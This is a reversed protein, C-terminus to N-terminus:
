RNHVSVRTSANWETQRRTGDVERLLVSRYGKRTRSDAWVNEVVEGTSIQDGRRLNRVAVQQAM